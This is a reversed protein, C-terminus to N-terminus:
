HGIKIHIANELQQVAKDNLKIGISKELKKNIVNMNDKLLEKGLAVLDPLVSPDEITGGIILPIETDRPTSVKKGKANTTTVVGVASIHYNIKHNILNITGRGRARLEPSQILLDNNRFIGQNITGTGTLEGFNTEDAKSSGKPVAQKKLKAYAENLQAVIGFGHLIGNHVAFQTKGDLSRILENVDNGSTTLNASADAIGTIRNSKLLQEIAINNFITNLSYRPVPNIIDINLQGKATGQFVQTSPIISILGNKATIRATFNSFNIKAATLNNISIQGNINAKQLPTFPSIIRAQQGKSKNASLRASNDASPKPLYRDLNLQDIALNFNASHTPIDTVDINGTIKSNDINATLQKIQFTKPTANFQTSLNISQLAAPDQTNLNINLAGLLQKLNLQTIKLQGQILPNTLIQKVDIAGNATINDSDLHLNSLKFTQRNLDAKIDAHLNIATKGSAANKDALEINIASDQLNYVGKEFNLTARTTLNIKAQLKPRNSDLNFQMSLPFPQSQSINGSVLNFNKIHITQDQQQDIWSINANNINVSSAVFNFHNYNHNAESQSSINNDSSQKDSLESLDRWNTEGQSNKLLNIQANNLALKGMEIKGSILPLLKISIDAQGISAFSIQSNFESPNSLDVDNIKLGIWPFFSWQINGNIVLNRGTRSHVYNTLKDKFDNPNVVNVLLFGAIVFLLITIVAISLFIKILKRM